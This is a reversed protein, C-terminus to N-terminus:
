IWMRRFKTAIVLHIMSFRYVTV